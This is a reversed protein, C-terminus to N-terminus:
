GSLLRDHDVGRLWNPRYVALLTVAGGTLFAEGWALLLFYPLRQELLVRAPEAGAAGLALTAALAVAAMSLGATLFAGAFIFVFLHAPLTRQVAVQALRSVAVPLLACLIVVFAAASPEITGVAVQIGVSATLCVAALRAGFMLTAATAGLFHLTVGPPVDAGIRWLVALAVISGLFVHLRASARLDRWPARIICLALAAPAAVGAGILWSQPLLEAAIHM